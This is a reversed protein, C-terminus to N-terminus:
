SFILSSFILKTNANIVNLYQYRSIYVKQQHYPYVPPDGFHYHLYGTCGTHSKKNLAHSWFVSSIHNCVPCAGFFTYMYVSYYQAHMYQLEVLIQCRENNISKVLHYFFTEWWMYMSYVPISHAIVAPINLIILHSKLMIIVKQALNKTITLARTLSKHCYHVSGFISWWIYWLYFEEGTLQIIMSSSLVDKVRGFLTKELSSRCVGKSCQEMCSMMQGIM